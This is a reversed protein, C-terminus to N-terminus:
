VRGKVVKDCFGNFRNRLLTIHFSLDGLCVSEYYTSTNLPGTVPSCFSQLQVPSIVAFSQVTTWDKSKQSDFVLFLGTEFSRDKTTLVLTFHCNQLAQYKRLFSRLIMNKPGISTSFYIFCYFNVCFLLLSFFIM